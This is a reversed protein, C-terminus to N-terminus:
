RLTLEAALGGGDRNYLRVSGGLAGALQQAIALGLGAGGTERNRSQELRFFPQMAAELMDQPIGPGRDLVTIVVEGGDRREIGIEAAGSFKIANDIFNTLIRRLAHPKTAVTGQVLDIVRVSKGTDQYDYAISEIFSSLDIRSAKEANGHASRAYAIGDQVLREIERLDSVLKEKEPTDDAMDARLRMRTIPTQLDHSIAALIQVREELHHAIRDRMANFARGARAVEAPGTERMPEGKKSPDVADAAAALDGLPRIAQRVAFWTCLLLLAMQVAFVYPLWSAIPMVGRPTVDITLESGDSLTVHGQLRKGDEPIAEVRLPFRHGAAEEIREAIEAGRGSMDPVGPLGPGLLLRYNGRSLRDLWLPRETPPLRDIVAISTALDSELTGLMVAKASMYREIFLISFSLSYAIALGIFLIIFLRSRLTSPWWGRRATVPTTGDNGAGGIM